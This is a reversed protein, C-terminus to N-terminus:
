NEYQYHGCKAIRNGVRNVSERFYIGSFIGIRFDNNPVAYTTKNENKIKAM